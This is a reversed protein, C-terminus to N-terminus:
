KNAGELHSETNVPDGLARYDFITNGGFNGVTEEGSHVGIRTDGFPINRASLDDVFGRAFRQMAIACRLARAEHDVQEVPTFFVIAVSDGVIRDLTGEHELAISIMRDLYANLVSVVAAPGAVSEALKLAQGVPVWSEVFMLAVTTSPIQVRMAIMM